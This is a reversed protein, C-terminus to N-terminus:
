IILILPLYILIKRQRGLGERACRPAGAEGGGVPVTSSPLVSRPCTALQWSLCVHVGSVNMGVPSKSDGRHRVSVSSKSHPLFGYFFFFFFFFGCLRACVRRLFPVSILGPGRRPPPPPTPPHSHLVQSCVLGASSPDHICQESCFLAKKKPCSEPAERQGTSVWSSLCGRDSVRCRLCLKLWLCSINWVTDLGRTPRSAM